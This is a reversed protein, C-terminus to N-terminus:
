HQMTVYLAVVDQTVRTAVHLNCIGTEASHESILSRQSIRCVPCLEPHTWFDDLTLWIAFLDVNPAKTAVSVLKGSTFRRKAAQCVFLMM